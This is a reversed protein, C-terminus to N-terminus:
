FELLGLRGDRRVEQHEEGYVAPVLRARRRSRVIASSWINQQERRISGNELRYARHYHGRPLAQRRSLGEKDNGIAVRIDNLEGAEHAASIFKWDRYGRPITTVIIQKAEKTGTQTKAVQGKNDQALSSPAMWAIVGTATVVAVFLFAIRKM